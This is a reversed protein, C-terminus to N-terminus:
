WTRQYSLDNKCFLKLKFLMQIIYSDKLQEASLVLKCTGIGRIKVSFISNSKQEFLLFLINNVFTIQLSIEKLFLGHFLKAQIITM